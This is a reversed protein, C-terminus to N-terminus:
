PTETEYSAVSMNILTIDNNGKRDPALPFSGTTNFPVLTILDSEASHELINFTVGANYLETVESQSLEKGWIAMEDLHGDFQNGGVASSNALTWEGALLAGSLTDSILNRGTVEVANAYFKVGANLQNGDYTIVCHTWTDRPYLTGTTRLSLEDSGATKKINFLLQQGTRWQIRYMENSVTRTLVDRHTSLARPRLWFSFSRAESGDFDISPDSDISGQQDVGNFNLSFPNNYPFLAERDDWKQDFLGAGAYDTIVETGVTKAQKIRWISASIDAPDILAEGTFELGANVTDVRKVKINDDQIVAVATDDSVTKRFKFNERDRTNESFPM